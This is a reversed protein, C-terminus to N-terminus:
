ATAITKKGSLKHKLSSTVMDFYPKLWLLFWLLGGHRRVYFFWDKKIYGKVSHFDKIRESFPLTVDTWREATPNAECEGVYGPAIWVDCGAKRARLGYDPDGWRHTYFPEINGVKAAVERPILVCNGTNTTCERPTDGPEVPIMKLTWRSVRKFGGYSFQGDRPDLTGGLVMSDPKGAEAFQEHTALLRRLADPYLFTDDNIWLYYDLDRSLAQGFALNMGGNWFLSGDGQYINVEPFATQVAESTGDKSGDDTMHVELALNEGLADQDYLHELCRLTMERRNFCTMIVGLTKKAM